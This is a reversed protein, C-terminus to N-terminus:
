LRAADAEQAERLLRTAEALRKDASSNKQYQRIVEDMPVESEVGDIKIKVKAPADAPPDSAAPAAATAAAAAAPDALQAALQAAAADEVPPVIPEPADESPLEWGNSEAMQQQHRSELADMALERPSKQIEQPAENVVAAAAPAAEAAPVDTPITAPM